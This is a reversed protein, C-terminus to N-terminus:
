MLSTIVLSIGSVVLMGAVVRRSWKEPIRGSLRMGALLGLLMAPSLLVAQKLVQLNLLGTVSYLIIRFVNECLFVLCINAKFDHSDKSVRAFYASLLAGVGYLGCLLGSLLGIVISMASKGSMPKARERLLMEAGLAVILVGFGVKIAADGTNKLLLAGPICGAMLILIMPLVTRPRIAKRERWIVLGNSPLGLLLEVPAIGAGPQFFAMVSTFILTNAFGCVGKVFYAIFAAIYWLLM